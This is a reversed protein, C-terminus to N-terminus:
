GEAFDVLIREIRPGVHSLEEVISTGMDPLALVLVTSGCILTVAFGVSFIQMAPAARSVFALAVQIVLLVAVIPMALRAGAAIAATSAELLGETAAGPRLVAGIPLLRFSELVAGIAVRHLGLILAFLIALQRLLQAVPSETVQAHPDFLSAVGFGLMPSFVDAAVQVAALAFRVVMGMALGVMLEFPVASLVAVIDQTHLSAPAASHIALALALTLGVRAQPPASSWALPAAIIVGSIRTVELVFVVVDPLLANLIM